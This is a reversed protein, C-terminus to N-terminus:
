GSFLSNEGLAKPGNQKNKKEQKPGLMVENLTVSTVPFDVGLIGVLALFLGPYHFLPPALPGCLLLYMCLCVASLHHSKPETKEPSVFLNTRPRPEARPFIVYFGIIYGGEEVACSCWKNELWLKRTIKPADDLQLPPSPDYIDIMCINHPQTGLNPHALRM